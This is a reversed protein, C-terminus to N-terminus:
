LKGLHKLLSFSTRSYVLPNLPAEIESLGLHDCKSHVFDEVKLMAKMDKM